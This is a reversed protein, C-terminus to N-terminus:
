LPTAVALVAVNWATVVVGLFAVALPVGVSHPRPLSRWALYCGCFTAAKLVVIAVVGHRRVHSAVVPAGETVGPTNLGVTTTAADGIGFFLVAVLWLWADVRSQGVRPLSTWLRM